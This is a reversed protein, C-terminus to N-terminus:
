ATDEDRAIRLGMRILHLAIARFAERARERTETDADPLFRDLLFDGARPKKPPPTMMGLMACRFM